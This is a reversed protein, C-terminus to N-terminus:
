ENLAERGSSSAPSVFDSSKMSRSPFQFSGDLKEYALKRLFGDRSDLGRSSPVGNGMGVGWLEATRELGAFESAFVPTYLERFNVRRLSDMNEVEM